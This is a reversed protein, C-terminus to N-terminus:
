HTLNKKRRTVTAAPHTLWHTDYTFSFIAKGRVVTAHLTGVLTLSYLEKWDCYVYILQESQKNM